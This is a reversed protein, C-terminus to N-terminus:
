RNAIAPVTAGPPTCAAFLTATIMQAADTVELRGATIEDAAGHAVNYFIVVHWPAPLDTRFVGDGRGRDIIERVRRMPRDHHSRIREAPLEREAALLLAPSQDAMQWSAAVLRALADAPDGRVDVAGHAAGARQLAHAFAADILERRSRFHGYLTVRGVGATM